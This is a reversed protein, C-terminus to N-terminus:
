YPIVGLLLFPPHNQFLVFTSVLSYNVATPYEAITINYNSIATYIPDFMQQFRDVQTSKKQFFVMAPSAITPVASATLLLVPTFLNLLRM